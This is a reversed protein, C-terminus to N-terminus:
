GAAPCGERGPNPDGTSRLAGPRGLRWSGCPLAAGAPWSRAGGTRCRAGARWGEGERSRCAAGRGAPGASRRPGHGRGRLCSPRGAFFTAWRACCSPGGEGGWCVRSAWDSRACPRATMGAASPRRRGRSYMAHLKRIAAISWDLAREAQERSTGRGMGGLFSCLSTTAVRLPPLPHIPLPNPYLLGPAPGGCCPRRGRRRPSSGGAGSGGGGLAAFAVRCGLLLSQGPVTGCPPLSRAWLGLWLACPCCACLVVIQVYFQLRM